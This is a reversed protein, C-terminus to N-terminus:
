SKLYQSYQVLTSLTPMRTRGSKLLFAKFKEKNLIVNAIPKRYIMKIINLFTGQIELKELVKIM